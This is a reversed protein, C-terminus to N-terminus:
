RVIKTLLAFCSTSSLQNLISAKSKGATQISTYPVGAATKRFMAVPSNRASAGYGAGYVGVTCAFNPSIRNQYFREHKDTTTRFIAIAQLLSHLNNPCVNSTHSHYRVPTTKFLMEFEKTYKTYTTLLSPTQRRGAAPWM